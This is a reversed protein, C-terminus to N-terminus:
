LRIVDYFVALQAQLCAGLKIRVNKTVVDEWQFGGLQLTQTEYYGLANLGESPLFDLPPFAPTSSFSSSPHIKNVFWVKKSVFVFDPILLIGPQIDRFSIFMVLFVFHSSTIVFLGHKKRFCFQQQLHPKHFPHQSSFLGNQTMKTWFYKYYGGANKTMRHHGLLTGPHNMVTGPLHFQILPEQFM